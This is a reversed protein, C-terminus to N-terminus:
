NWHSHVARMNLRDTIKRAMTIGETSFTHLVLLQQPGFHSQAQSFVSQVGSFYRGLAINYWIYIM